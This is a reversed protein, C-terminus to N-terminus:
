SHLLNQCILQQSLSQFTAWLGIFRGIQDCQDGGGFFWEKFFISKRVFNERDCRVFSNWKYNRKKFELVFHFSELKFM